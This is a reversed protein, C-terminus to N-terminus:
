ITSHNSFDSAESGFYEQWMRSDAFGASPAWPLEDLTEGCSLSPTFPTIPGMDDDTLEQRMQKKRLKSKMKRLTRIAVTSPLKIFALALLHLLSLPCCCVATCDAAAGAMCKCIGTKKTTMSKTEWEESSWIDEGKPKRPSKATKASGPISAQLPHLHTASKPRGGPSESMLHKSDSHCLNTVTTPRSSPTEATPNKKSNRYQLSRHRVPTKAQDMGPVGLTHFRRGITIENKYSEEHERTSKSLVIRSIAKVELFPDEGSLSTLAEAM